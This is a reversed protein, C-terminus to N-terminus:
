SLASSLSQRARATIVMYQPVHSFVKEGLWAKASVAKAAFQFAAANILSLCNVLSKDFRQQKGSGVTQARTQTARETPSTKREQGTGDQGKRWRKAEPQKNESKKEKREWIEREILVKSEIDM